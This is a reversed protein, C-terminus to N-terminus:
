PSRISLQSLQVERSVWVRSLKKTVYKEHHMEHREIPLGTDIRGQSLLVVHLQVNGDRISVSMGNRLQDKLINQFVQTRERWRVLLEAEQSWRKETFRWHFDSRLYHVSYCSEPLWFHLSRNLWLRKAVWVTLSSHVNSRQLQPTRAWQIRARVNFNESWGNFGCHRPSPLTRAENWQCRSIFAKDLYRKQQQFSLELFNQFLFPKLQFWQNNNRSVFKQVNQWKKWSQFHVFLWAKHPGPCFSAEPDFEM